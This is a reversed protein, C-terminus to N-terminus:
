LVKSGSEWRINEDQTEGLLYDAFVIVKAGVEKQRILTAYGEPVFLVDGTNQTLCFVEKSNRDIRGEEIKSVAIKVVGQLCSFWRKEVYHGKWGRQISPSANEIIYFRRALRMDFANNYVLVGRSDIFKRGNILVPVKM